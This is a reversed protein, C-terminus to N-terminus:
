LELLERPLRHMAGQRSCVCAAVGSALCQAEWVSRGAMVAAIFTATFADGAGVADAGEEKNGVPVAERYFFGEPSFTFNGKEACTLIIIDIRFREALELCAKECTEMEKDGFGEKRSFASLRTAVPLVGSLTQLEEHNIKLVNCIRLSNELIEKTYYYQRLNIDFLKYVGEREPMSHLFSRITGASVDNRQALTGFVACDTEAALAALHETFCIHDWAADEAIRYRYDGGQEKLIYVKGTQRSNYQVGSFSIGERELARRLAKGERDYGIASVTIAEYGFQSAYYVVNAPAGGTKKNEPPIAEWAMKEYEADVPVTIDWLLEGLGAIRKKM